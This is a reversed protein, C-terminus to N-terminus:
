SNEKNEEEEKVHDLVPLLQSLSLYYKTKVAFETGDRNAQIGNQSRLVDKEENTLNKFLATTKKSTDTGKYQNEISAYKKIISILAPNSDKGEIAAM